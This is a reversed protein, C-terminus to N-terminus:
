CPKWLARLLARWLARLTYTYMYMNSIYLNYRYMYPCFPFAHWTPSSSSSSLLDSHSLRAKTRSSKRTSELSPSSPQKARLYDLVHDIAQRVLAIPVYELYFENPCHMEGVRQALIFPCFGEREPLYGRKNDHCVQELLCLFFCFASPSIQSSHSHSM